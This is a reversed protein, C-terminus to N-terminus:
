PKQPKLDANQAHFIDALKMTFPEPQNIQIRRIARHKTTPSAKGGQTRIPSRVSERGMM